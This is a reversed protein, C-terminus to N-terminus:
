DKKMAEKRIEPSFKEISYRLSTRPMEKRHKMVYHFVEKPFHNGAEKLMWGYGKQVLDDKDLLLTDAIEFVSAIMQKRRISYILVVASARRLWRNRSKAWLKITSVFGPFQFLFYGLAHTCFDDCSGWGEVYKKLWYEFLCFDRIEYHKKCRYAWDFAVNNYGEKLLDECLEFIEQKPRNKIKRYSDASIKKVISAKLVYSKGKGIGKEFQGADIMYKNDRYKSIENRLETVISSKRKM